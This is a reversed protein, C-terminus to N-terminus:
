CSNLSACIWTNIFFVRATSAGSKSKLYVCELATVFIVGDITVAYFHGYSLSTLMVYTKERFSAADKM